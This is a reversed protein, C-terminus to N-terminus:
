TFVYVFLIGFHVCLDRRMVAGSVLHPAVPLLWVVSATHVCFSPM